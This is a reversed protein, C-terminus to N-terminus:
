DERVSLIRHGIMTLREFDDVSSSREMMERFTSNNSLYELEDASFCRVLLDMTEQKNVIDDLGSM